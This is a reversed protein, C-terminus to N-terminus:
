KKYTIHVDWQYVYLPAVTLADLPTLIAYGSYGRFSGTGGPIIVEYPPTPTQITGIVTLSSGDYKSGQKFIHQTNIQSGGTAIGGITSIVATGTISGLLLSDSTNGAKLANDVVLFSGWGIASMNGQGTGAALLITSNAGGRIEHAFYTLHLPKKHSTTATVGGAHLSCLLIMCLAYFALVRAAM